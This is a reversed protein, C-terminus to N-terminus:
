FQEWNGSTAKQNSSSAFDGWMDDNSTSHNTTVPAATAAPKSNTAAAGGGGLFDGLLDVNSSPVPKTESSPSQLPTLSAAGPPPAIKFGGPPPPLIGGGGSSRNSKSAAQQQQQGGQKKPINIRITQGEKFALDLNPKVPEDAEKSFVEEKKLWKFHDQLTVNLDFSDARDAFGIGIYAKRGSDQICIM